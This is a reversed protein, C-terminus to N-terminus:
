DAAALEEDRVPKTRAEARALAVRHHCAAGKLPDPNCAIPASAATPRPSPTHRQAACGISKMPDPNCPASVARTPAAALLGPSAPLAVSLALSALLM